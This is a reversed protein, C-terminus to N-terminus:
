THGVRRNELLQRLERGTVQRSDSTFRIHDQSVISPFLGSKNQQRKNKERATDKYERFTQVTREFEQYVDQASQRHQNKLDVLVEDYASEDRKDMEENGLEDKFHVFNNQMPVVLKFEKVPKVSNMQNDAYNLLNSEIKWSHTEELVPENSYRSTAPLSAPVNKKAIHKSFPETRRVDINSRSKIKSKEFNNRPKKSYSHKLMRVVDTEPIMIMDKYDSINQQNSLYDDGESKPRANILNTRTNSNKAKTLVPLREDFKDRDNSHVAQTRKVPVNKKDQKTDKVQCSDVPDRYTIELRNPSAGRRVVLKKAYETRVKRSSVKQSSMEKAERLKMKKNEYQDLYTEKNAKRVQETKPFDTQIARNTEKNAKRVQENKPFDTQIARNVEKNAKRVQETKPFDTQIARDSQPKNYRKKHSKLENPSNASGDHKLGTQGDTQTESTKYSKTKDLVETRETLPKKEANEEGEIRRETVDKEKQEMKQKIDDHKRKANKLKGKFTNLDEDLKDHIANELVSNRVVAGKGMSIAYDLKEKQKKIYKVNNLLIQIEKEVNDLQLDYVDDENMSDKEITNKNRDVEKSPFPWQTHNKGNKEKKKKSDALVDKWSKELVIDRAKANKKIIEQMQETLKKNEDKLAEVEEGLEKRAKQLKKMKVADPGHELVSKLVKNENYTPEYIKILEAKEKELEKITKKYMLESELLSDRHKKLHKYTNEENRMKESWRKTEQERHNIIEPRPEGVNRRYEFEHPHNVVTFM